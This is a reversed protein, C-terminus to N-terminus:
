TTVGPSIYILEKQMLTREPHAPNAADLEITQSAAKEDRMKLKTYSNKGYHTGVTAHYIGEPITAYDESSPSTNADFTTTTGDALYVTATSSGM